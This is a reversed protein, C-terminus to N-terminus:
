GVSLAAASDCAEDVTVGGLSPVFFCDSLGADEDVILAESSSCSTSDESESVPDWAAVM